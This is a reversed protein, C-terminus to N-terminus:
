KFTIVKFFDKLLGYYNYQSDSIMIITRNGNSLTPGLCLGEYNAIGTSLTTNVEYFKTKTMFPSSSSLASDDSVPTSLMPNVVYLKCNVFANLGTSPVYFERELIILRGDDLALIDSVGMAYKESESSSSEPADMKYAYQCLPQLSEDFSQIRLVNQVGNTSTAQEGDIKLTSETTTWFTHTYKNYALSEFSYNPIINNNFTTPMRLSRGTLSGDLNYELIQNDGEGSVFVKNTNPVYTIGEEDRNLKGSKFFGESTVSKIEGTGSDIDIDFIDFGDPDSKDDAIAYRKGGIWCIGSYNGATITSPFSKQSLEKQVVLDPQFASLVINHSKGAIFDYTNSGSLIYVKGDSTTVSAVLNKITQPIALMYLILSKNSTTQLSSFTFTVDGKKKSNLTVSGDSSPVMIAQTVLSDSTLVVKKINSVDVPFTLNLRLISTQNSFDFLNSSNDYSTAALMMAHSQVWDIAGTQSVYDVNVSTGDVTSTSPYYAYLQNGNEPAAMVGSFTASQSQGDTKTTLLSFSNQNSSNVMKITDQASWCAHFGNKVGKDTINVRTGLSATFSVVVTKGTSENMNTQVNESSSCSELLLITLLIFTPVFDRKM